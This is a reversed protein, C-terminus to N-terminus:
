YYYSYFQLDAMKDLPSLRFLKYNFKTYHRWEFPYPGSWTRVLQHTELDADPYNCFSYMYKTYLM